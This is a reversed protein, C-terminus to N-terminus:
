GLTISWGKTILSDYAAKAVDTWTEYPCRGVHTTLGAKGGADLAVLINETSQPTLNVCNMWTEHFDQGMGFDLLPFDYMPSCDRWAIAFNIGNRTDIWPFYSNGYSRWGAGSDFGKCDGFELANAELWVPDNKNSWAPTSSPCILVNLEYTATVPGDWATASTATVTYIGSDPEEILESIVWSLVPSNAANTAAVPAGSGSPAQWTWVVDTAPGDHSATLTVTAFRVPEGEEAISVKGIKTACFANLNSLTASYTVGGRVAYVLDGIQGSNGAAFEQMTLSHNAGAREVFLLDTSEM